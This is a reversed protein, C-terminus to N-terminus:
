ASAGRFLLSRLRAVNQGVLLFDDTVEGDRVHIIRDCAGALFELDHSIVFVLRGRSALDRVIDCVSRMSHGDLGSTPEDFLLVRAPSVAASAITVRQKQGGSLAMPHVGRLSAMGLQELVDRVREDLTGDDENGLRLEDEVSETFLQYDADQMVFYMSRSRARRRLMRGDLEVTGRCRRSLGCLCRALTTKGAGNPGTIGIVEARQACRAGAHGGADFEVGCLVAREGFSLRVDRVHLLPSVPVDAQVRRDASAPAAGDDGAARGARGDAAASDARAPAVDDLDFLRLGRRMLEDRSLSRARSPTWQDVIRGDEMFVVRDALEMLYYLRHESVVVTRGRRKLEALVDALMLTARVDLNASPEDLVFLNPEMAYTSALAVKQKEGSSLDFISRNRLHEIAFDAFAGEVQSAIRDSPLGLNECGFAVESVTNTTFFQSRPDQFVSGVTAALEYTALQRVDRGGVLVKGSLNGPFFHPILGNMLRTLTTKGCGSRGTALVFEGERVSLAVDHLAAGQAGQYSFSVHEMEVINM